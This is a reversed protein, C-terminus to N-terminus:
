RGAETIYYELDAALDKDRSFGRSKILRVAERAQKLDAASAAPILNSLDLRDRDRGALVKMAILHGATAVPAKIGDAVKVRTAAAVIEREIGSSAFLLDAITKTGACVLRVTATRDTYAQELLVGPQYGRSRLRFVVGDAEHDDAVAVAFDVDQTFRAEVTRASVAMGGILAWRAGVADLDAAARRMMEITTM